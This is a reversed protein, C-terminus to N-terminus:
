APNYHVPFKLIEQPPPLQIDPNFATFFKHFYISSRNQTSNFEQDKNEIDEVIVEKEKPDEEAYIDCLEYKLNVQHFIIAVIPTATIYVILFLFLFRRLLHLLKLFYYSAKNRM